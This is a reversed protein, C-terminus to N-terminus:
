IMSDQMNNISRRSEAKKEEASVAKVVTFFILSRVSASSFGPPRAASASLTSSFGLLASEAMSIPFLTTFMEAEAREATSAASSKPLKATPIAVPMSVTSTSRKPSIMGM